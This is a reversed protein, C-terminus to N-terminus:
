WFNRSSAAGAHITAYEHSRSWKPYEAGWGEFRIVYM